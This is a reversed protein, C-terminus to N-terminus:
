VVSPLATAGITPPNLTCPQQPSPCPGLAPVLASRLSGTTATAVGVAWLVMLGSLMGEASSPSPKLLILLDFIFDPCTGTKNKM